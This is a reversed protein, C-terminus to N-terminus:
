PQLIAVFCWSGNFSWYLGAQGTGDVNAAIAPIQASGPAPTPTALLAASTPYVIAGGGGPAIGDLKTKDAASMVGASSDTAQPITHPWHDLGDITVSNSPDNPM